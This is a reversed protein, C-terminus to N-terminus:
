STKEDITRLSFMKLLMSASIIRVSKYRGMDLLDKDGSVIFDASASVACAIFEDDDADRCVGKTKDTIEVIEFFPLVEEEIIMRIEHETLSFKPYEIVTKFEAFTERSLVPVIRGKKWLDVIGALEGKFLLASVLINTDLVVKRLAKEKKGM